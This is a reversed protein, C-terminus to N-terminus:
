IISFVTLISQMCSYKVPVTLLLLLIDACFVMVLNYYTGMGAVEAVRRPNAEARVNGLFFCSYFILLIQCHERLKSFCYHGGGMWWGLGMGLVGVGHKVFKGAM